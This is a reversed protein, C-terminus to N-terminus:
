MQQYQQASLKRGYELANDIAPLLDGFLGATVLVAGKGCPRIVMYPREEGTSKQIQKALVEWYEPKEPFLVGAPTHWAAKRMNNPTTAFSTDTYWTPKRVASVDDKYRIKFTADEFKEDLDECWYYCNMFLVAGNRVAPAIKQRFCEKSLKNQYSNFVILDYQSYDAAEAEEQTLLCDSNWGHKVLDSKMSTYRGDKSHPSCIWALKQGKCRESFIISAMLNLDRYIAAPFGCPEQRWCSNRIISIRWSDGDKPRSGTLSKFPLVIDATWGDARESVKATWEPNWSKDHVKADYTGGALNVGMQRYEGDGLGIFMEICDASFINVDRGTEGRRVKDMEKEHCDIYIHLAEDSWYLKMETPQHEGKKSTVTVSPVKAFDTGEPLYPLNYMTNNKGSVEWVKVWEDFLDKELSIEYLARKAADTEGCAKVAAEAEAFCKQAHAILGTSILQPAIGDPSSGFYSIHCKMADWAAAFKTLYAFMPKSGAGYVHDCWDRLIDDPNLSPNWVMRAYIYYPIRMKIHRLKEYPTKRPRAIPMETKMRIIRENTAYYKAEEALMNWFPVFMGGKTFIDFQYGYIAVKAKETWRGIKALSNKNIGCTPDGLHHIYCRNYQCYEVYELWSCDANKPVPSYEQYALAAVKLNPNAARSKETLKRYYNYFRSSADPEKTCDPCQCRLTTDYIFANLIEANKSMKALREIMAETFEPNSWCGAEGEKVRKGDVLSFWDPHNKFESANIGISHTGARRIFCASMDRAGSQCGMNLGQRVLWRETPIHGHYSCQSMERYRFRPQYHWNLEPLVYSTRPTLYTGDDRSGYEAPWYWRADLQDYLFHYVSYLTARPSNAALFLNGDLTKVSMVDDEGETLGLVDAKAKIVPSSLSGIVIAKSGLAADSKEIPLTVGGIKWLNTQLEAAAYEEAKGASQSLVIRWDSAGDKFLFTEGNAAYACLAGGFCIANLVRKMM